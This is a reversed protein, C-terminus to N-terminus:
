FDIARAENLKELYDILDNMIRVPEAKSYKARLVELIQQVTRRGDCLEVIALSSENLRLVREPMLLQGPQGSVRDALRVGPALRPVTSVDPRM